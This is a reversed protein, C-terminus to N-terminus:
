GVIGQKKLLFDHFSLLWLIWLVNWVVTIIMLLFSAPGDGPLSHVAIARDLGISGWATCTCFSAVAVITCMIRIYNRNEQRPESGSSSLESMQSLELSHSSPSSPYLASMPDIDLALRTTVLGWFAFFVMATATALLIIAVPYMKYLIVNLLLVGTVLVASHKSIM